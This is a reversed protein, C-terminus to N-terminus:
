TWSFTKILSTASNTHNKIFSTKHITISLVYQLSLLLSKGTNTKFNLSIWLSTWVTYYNLFLNIKLYNNELTNALLTSDVLQNEGFIDFIATILTNMITIRESQVTLAPKYHVSSTVLASTLGMLSQIILWCEVNWMGRTGTMMRDICELGVNRHKTLSMTVGGSVGRLVGKGEM